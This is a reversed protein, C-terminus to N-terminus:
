VPPSALLDAIAQSIPMKTLHEIWLWQGNPNIELFVHEGSPSVIMDICGFSLGLREVLQICKEQIDPPLSYPLHPTNPLDYRRWDEKTRNSAQSHIACAFVKKGVVTIRLEFDKEIYSQLILPCNKVSLLRAVFEATSLRKTYLSLGKEVGDREVVIGAARIPKFAVDSKCGKAFEGATSSSNTVATTPIVFGLQSAMMLQYPKRDAIRIADPNGFWFTRLMQPLADLLAQSESVVYNRISKDKLRASPKPEAMRRNLVSKISNSSVKEGDPLIIDLESASINIGFSIETETPFKSYDLEHVNEGMQRLLDIMHKGHADNEHTIM